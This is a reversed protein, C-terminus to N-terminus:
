DRSTFVDVAQLLVYEVRVIRVPLIGLHCVVGMCRNLVSRKGYLLSENDCQAPPKGTKKHVSAAPTCCVDGVLPPAGAVGPPALRARVAGAARTSLSIHKEQAKLFITRSFFSSCSLKLMMM